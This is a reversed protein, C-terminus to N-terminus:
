PHCHTPNISFRVRLFIFDPQIQCRFGCRRTFVPVQVLVRRTEPRTWTGTPNTFTNKKNKNEDPKKEHKIRTGKMTKKPKLNNEPGKWIKKNIEPAGAPPFCFGCGFGTRHPDPIPWGMPAFIFRFGCGDPRFGVPLRFDSASNDDRLLM